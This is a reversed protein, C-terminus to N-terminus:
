RSYYEVILADNFQPVQIQDRTPLQSVRGSLNVRDMLIWDPATRTALVDQFEKFYERKRSETRVAVVDNPRVLFSPINTKRGNVTLHGHRVIQRAHARSEAFGMRFVVNDLRSELIQLLNDGTVGGRREAEVFHRKFQTELLGYFRRVKQKERLQLGYESPRRTRRQGHQGPPFNRAPSRQVIPCKPGECRAGKLYLKMGERRCLRCVPGTYRAM